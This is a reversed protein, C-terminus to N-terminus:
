DDAFILALDEALQKKDKGTKGGLAGQIVRTKREQLAIMKDDITKKVLFRTVHVERTQGFRHIRDIAQSEVAFNWWYDMLYVHDAAILNLGVGGAKLSALLIVSNESKTFKRVVSQRSAQSMAGDLRLNTFGDRNMVREILDLFGTFQSFVVAKLKPDKEKAKELSKVLAELKTSSRFDKKASTLASQKGTRISPKVDDDDDSDGELNGLGNEEEEEDSMGRRYKRPSPVFEDSADTDGEGDEDEDDSSDSLTIEQIKGKGKGNEQGNRNGNKLDKGEKETEEEQEQEEEEQEDDSDLITLVERSSSSGPSSAVTDILYSPKKGKSSASTSITTTRSQSQSGPPLSKSSGDANQLTSIEKETLPGSSCVPCRPEQGNEQADLLHSLVCGKCGSHQCRPIFVPIEIPEFCVMCESDDDMVVDGEEKPELLGEIVEDSGDKGRSYQEIMKQIAFDDIRQGEKIQAELDDSDNSTIPRRGQTALNEKLRKLVLTPHLVAQRLRMLISFIATVNQLVNGQEQYGLFKSKANKYLAQYIEREEKSFELEVIQIKKEPLSVIPKGDKDKMKKERRLLISELIVQIVEIARPDKNQFPVTVFTKFFSFNGWPELQIFHLLSYLDELRNVIPTGTLAWRRAGRLAYSAKANLTTRSKILHAEDLVIRFWEIAFLGKPKKSSSSSSSKKTKVEDPKGKGKGKDDKNNGEATLLGSTKFDSCLVGYSTVVVDARGQEIEELLSKGSMRGGGYYMLVKLGGKKVRNSRELEDCWQSLLTMPAVVLTARPTGSSLRKRKTTTSSGPKSSQTQLIFRPPKVEVKVDEEEEERKPPQEDENSTTTESTCNWPTITHILSAVMITKGLGMEDALIGGRCKTSAKPFRLSLEGSYPNYYFLDSNSNSNASSASPFQYTEWLPHISSSKRVEEEGTEMSSMWKLAQKQYGRLNLAFTDPPDREPLNSDNKTAKSYVLNLQIEDMEDEEEEEEDDGNNNENKERKKKEMKELLTRKSQSSTPAGGGGTSDHNTNIPQLNTKDFLKNLATKRERLLRERDTEKLDDVIFSKKKSGDGNNTTISTSTSTPCPSSLNPDIFASKSISVSLILSMDQGSRFKTPVEAAFGTVQLLDHDMLRALWSSDQKSIRGIDIGKSNQFRVVDNELKKAAALSKKGEKISTQSLKVRYLKIPDGQKLSVFTSQSAIAYGKVIVDGFYKSTWDSDDATSVQRPPPPARPNTEDEDDEDDDLEMVEIQQKSSSAVANANGGNTTTLNLPQKTDDDDVQPSSSDFFRPRKNPRAPKEEEEQDIPTEDRFLPQDM